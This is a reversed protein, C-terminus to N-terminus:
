TIGEKGDTLAPTQAVAKEMLKIKGYYEAVSIKKPDIAFGMFKELAANNSYFDDAKEKLLDALELEIIELHLLKVADGTLAVEATLITAQKLKHLYEEFPKSMGFRRHFEDYLKAWHQRYYPHRLRRSEILLTLDGGAHIENWNWMPLTDLSQYLKHRLCTNLWSPFWKM